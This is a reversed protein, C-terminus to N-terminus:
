KGMLKVRESYLIGLVSVCLRGDPCRPGCSWWRGHGSELETHTVLNHCMVLGESLV